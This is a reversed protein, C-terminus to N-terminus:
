GELPKFTASSAPALRGLEERVLIERADIEADADDDRGRADRAFVLEEIEADVGPVPPGRRM